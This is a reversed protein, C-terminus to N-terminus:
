PMMFPALTLVVHFMKGFIDIRVMDFKRQNGKEAGVDRLFSSVDMLDIQFECKPSPATYGNYNKYNRTQKNLRTRSWKQVFSLNIGSDVEKKECIDRASGFGVDM